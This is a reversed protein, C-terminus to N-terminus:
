SRLTEEQFNYAERACEQYLLALAGEDTPAGGQAAFVRLAFITVPLPGGKFHHRLAEAVDEREQKTYARASAYFALPRLPSNRPIRSILSPLTEM